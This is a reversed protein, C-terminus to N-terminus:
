CRRQGACDGTRFMVLGSQYLVRSSVTSDMGLLLAATNFAFAPGVGYLSIHVTDTTNGNNQEVRTHLRVFSM